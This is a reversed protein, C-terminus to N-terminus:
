LRGLLLHVAYGIALWCPAALALGLLIGRAPSASRQRQQTEAGKEGRATEAM